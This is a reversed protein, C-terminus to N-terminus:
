RSVAVRPLWYDPWQYRGSLSPGRFGCRSFGGRPRYQIWTGEQKGLHGGKVELILVGREPDAVVFDGEASEGPKTRIRLSHWAFWGAPLAAGLSDHVRRESPEAYDPFSCPPYIVPSPFVSKSGM